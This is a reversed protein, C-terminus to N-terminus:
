LPITQFGTCTKKITKEMKVGFENKCKEHFQIEIYEM